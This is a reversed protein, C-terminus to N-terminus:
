EASSEESERDLVSPSSAIVGDAGRKELAWAAARSDVTWANVEMGADHAEAVVDTLLCLSTHPHVFSCELDDALVLDDAPTADLVYALSVSEDRERTERITDADFSSVIVENPAEEALDLADNIAEAEKLEFNVGTDAPIAELVRELTQVGEGEHADLATLEGATLDDVRDIGDIGIDVLDNHAVVLEGSGCRRVDLEIVDAKSAAREVAAVTNPPHEDDFGRHAILRM